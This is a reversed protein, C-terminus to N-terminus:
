YHIGPTLIGFKSPIAFPVREILKTYSCPVPYLRFNDSNECGECPDKM